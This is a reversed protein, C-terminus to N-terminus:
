RSRPLSVIFTTGDAESSRVDISGGHAEVIKDVIYLGLGLHRRDTREGSARKMADFLTGLKEHPIPVGGNSVVIRVAEPEDGRAMVMVTSARAGHQVANGVLNSLAQGLRSRDWQGVLDGSLEITIRSEGSSALVEAVVERVLAGVDLEARRIPIGDGLRTLALDLLDTVLENMRWGSREMGAVVARQAEPLDASEYLFRSGTLIAGLPTRLDHGLVALFRERASEIEHTYQALSEAIAQDIAENFRIMEELEEAGAREELKMWLSIVSARLARFEAVMSAVSFGSAARVGGHKSAETVPAGAAADRNGRSKEDREHETEATELDRVVVDLMGNAHDRLAVVDMAAAVPLGRAFDDWATLIAERHERIFVPLRSRPLQSPM